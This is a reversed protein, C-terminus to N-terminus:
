GRLPEIPRQRYIAVWEASEKMAEMGLEQYLAYALPTTGDDIDSPLLDYAREFLMRMRDYQRAQAKCALRESYGALVAAVIPLLGVVILLVHQLSIETGAIDWHRDVKALVMYILLPVLAFPSLLILVDSWAQMREAFSNHRYGQRQFYAFQGHVWFRRAIAHGAPDIPRSQGGDPKDLRELTRLCIKV